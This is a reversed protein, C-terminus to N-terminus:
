KGPGGAGPGGEGAGTGGGDGKGPTPEGGEGPAPTGGGPGTTTPPPVTTSPVTQTPTTQTATPTTPTTSPTTPTTKPTTSTVTPQAVPQACKELALHHLNVIGEELRSHLGGDITAPLRHFDQETKLIAAETTQCSGSGTEAAHEVAEFDAQLPGADAAPILSGGSSGCSVLLATALGLLGATITRRLPPSGTAARRLSGSTPPHHHMTM